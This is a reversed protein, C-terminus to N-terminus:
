HVQNLYSAYWQNERNCIESKIEEISNEYKYNHTSKNYITDEKNFCENNKSYSSSHNKIIVQKNKTERFNQTHFSDGCNDNLM